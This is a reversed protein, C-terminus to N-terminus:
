FKLEHRILASLFEVFLIDPLYLQNLDHLFRQLKKMMQKYIYQWQLDLSPLTPIENVVGCKQAQELGSKYPNHLNPM